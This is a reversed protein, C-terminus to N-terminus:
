GEEGVLDYELTGCITVDTIDGPKLKKESRVYVVGDVEPADYRTRGIYRNKEKKDKEDILVELRRNMYRENTDESVARQLAMLRDFRAEKEKESVANKLGYAKTGEEPSFLFVGLKEFKYDKVFETLEKFEKETEGPFGVILSTRIACEPIKKRIKDILGTMTKRDIKRNMAKLIKNNIHQAPLDFYKCLAGEGRIVDILEDTYHAPHTYLLRIWAGGARSALKKLLEPLAKKKYKDIGYLTTDQGVLNIEKAGNKILSSAEEMVSEVSRSRYPGRIKPIICYSCFNMCGEQIKLYATHRPTMIERPLLHHYLFEPKRDVAVVKKGEMIQDLYRPLEAFFSTGFIADIEKIESMLEGSYRQSLCGVVILKGIKGKKKHDAMQLIVDISEEKADKIFGCTNVIGFLAGKEIKDIVNYGEKKLAGSLVESDVLNRPCGLSIIFINKKKEM